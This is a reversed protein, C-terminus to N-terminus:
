GTSINTVIWLMDRNNRRMMMMIVIVMVITMREPAQSLTHTQASFIDRMMRSDTGNTENYTQSGNLVGNLRM